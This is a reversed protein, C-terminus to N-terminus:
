ENSNASFISQQGLKQDIVKEYSKMIEYGVYKRNTHLAVKATTGSGLFPDLVIDGVFSYLRILRRVIEEPMIAPHEGYALDSKSPTPIDWVQKTFTIWERESLKSEEKIKKSKKPPKGDKVYVSIFEVTNQAYFNAPYPYSGFMAAKSPNTRNWVYKDLLALKTKHIVKWQIGADIDAIFRTYNPSYQKKPIPMLPSNIALKGNPHLVRECEKWVPVMADLYEEYDSIDGIQGEDKDSLVEDQTGNMSYDKVNWYPPSTIVLTISDDEIESMDRADKYYVINTKM